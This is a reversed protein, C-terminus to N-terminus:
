RGGFGLNRMPVGQFGSPPLAIPPQQMGGTYMGSPNIGSSDYGGGQPQGFSGSIPMPRPQFGGPQFGGQPMGMQPQFPAQNNPRNMQAFYAALSNQMNSAVPAAMSPSIGPFGAFGGLGGMGGGGSADQEGTYTQRPAGLQQLQPMRAMMQANLM